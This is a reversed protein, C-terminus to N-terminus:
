PSPASNFSKAELSDSRLDAKIARGHLIAALEYRRNWVARTVGSERAL